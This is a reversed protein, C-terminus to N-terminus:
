NATKIEAVHAAMRLHHVPTGHSAQAVYPWCPPNCGHRRKHEHHRRCYPSVTMGGPVAIVGAIVGALVGHMQLAIVTMGSRKLGRLGVSLAFRLGCIVALSVGTTEVRYAM